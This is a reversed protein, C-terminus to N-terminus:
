PTSCLKEFLDAIKYLLAADFHRAYEVSPRGGVAEIEPETELYSAHERIAQVFAAQDEPKEIPM